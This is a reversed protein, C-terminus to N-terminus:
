PVYVPENVQYGDEVPRAKGVDALYVGGTADFRPDLAAWVSTAAGQQVNCGVIQFYDLDGASSLTDEQFHRTIGTELVVGPHVSLGRISPAYHRDISSAMWINATKSQAYAAFQEYPRHQFNIDDFNIESFRHGGSSLAIVRSPSTDTASKSLLPQLLRFLLFHGLHNCGFQQEFGDEYLGFPTAM